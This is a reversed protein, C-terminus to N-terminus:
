TLLPAPLRVDTQTAPHIYPPRVGARGRGGDIVDPRGDLCSPPCPRGLTGNPHLHSADWTSLNPTATVTWKLVRGHGHTRKKGIAPIISLLDRIQDAHGAAQWVVATCTTVLVPRHHARYRGRRDSVTKPTSQALTELHRHDAHASFYTVHPLLDTGDVPWACTSAWHWSRGADCRALPLDVLSPTPQDLVKADDSDARDLLTSALLGDLAIGWPHGFVIGAELHATVQLPEHKM